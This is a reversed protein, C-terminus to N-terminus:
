LENENSDNRPLTVQWDFTNLSSMKLKRIYLDFTENEMAPKITIEISKPNDSIEITHYIMGITGNPTINVFTLDPLTGAVVTMSVNGPISSLHNTTNSGNGTSNSTSRKKRATPCVNTLVRLVSTDIDPTNNRGYIFPNFQSFIMQLMFSFHIINAPCESIETLSEAVGLM